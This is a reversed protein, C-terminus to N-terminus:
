QVSTDGRRRGSLYRRADSRDKCESLHTYSVAEKSATSIQESVDAAAFLLEANSVRYDEIFVVKLKGNISKDNNIVDAVANILKITLKARRSTYLLCTTDETINQDEQTENYVETEATYETEATTEATTEPEVVLLDDDELLDSYDILSISNAGVTMVSSGLAMAGAVCVAAVKRVGKKMKVYAEM